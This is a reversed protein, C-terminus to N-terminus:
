LSNSNKFVQHYLRIIVYTIQAGGCEPYTLKITVNKAENCYCLKQAVQAVLVDGANLPSCFIFVYM